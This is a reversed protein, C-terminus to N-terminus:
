ATREHQPPTRQDDTDGVANPEVVYAPEVVYSHGTPMRWRLRGPSLQELCPHAVDFPYVQKLQHHRRCLVALNSAATPGDPYPTTHDLDAGVAPRNCTPYRCTQDRIEVHRAMDAPPAYTTTGVDLVTGSAPDTLLRRWSGEAAIARAMPANIPGYGALEGPAEDMRMLTTAAVTVQIQPLEGRHRSLAVETSGALAGNQLAQAFPWVLMDARLQELTRADDAAAHCKATRAAAEVAKEITLAAAAPLLASLWAMGDDAPTVWVRRDEAARVRREEAGRPDVAIAARRVRKRLKSVDQEAARVLIEGEVL